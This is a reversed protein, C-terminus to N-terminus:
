VAAFDWIQLLDLVRIPRAFAYSMQDLSQQKRVFDWEATADEVVYVKFGRQAADRATSEVCISTTVGILVLRKIALRSLIADLPTGFFASYAIKQVIPEDPNPKLADVIEASWSGVRLAMDSNTVSAKFSITPVSAGLGVKVAYIVPVRARRAASVVQLCPQTVKACAYPDGMTRAIEGNPDCYANQMDIVVLASHRSDIDLDYLRNNNQLTTM